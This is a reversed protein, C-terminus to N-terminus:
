HANAISNKIYEFDENKDTTKQHQLQTEAEPNVNLSIKLAAFDSGGTGKKLSAVYLLFTM